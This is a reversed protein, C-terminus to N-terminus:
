EYYKYRDSFAAAEDRQVSRIEGLYSQYAQLAKSYDDKTAHGDKFMLQIIKLSGHYGSGVAIMSHKLVKNMNGSRAEACGLNHRAHEDGGIAALEYYHTAKKENREVGNGNHYAIGINFYAEANGLQGARHWLELAKAHDQPLGYMGEAYCRGLNGIAQADDIEVRKMVLKINEEDTPATPTRCFPCKAVGNMKVAHICGCCILKGCCAMYTKGKSLTPMRLFCIPCDENIPPQKFLAEDHLEAAREKCEKKHQPRHAKQCAANCYKVMKCAGCRRLSDSSEEGKGCNACSSMNNNNPSEDM